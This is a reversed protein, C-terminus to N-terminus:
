NSWLEIQQSSTPRLFRRVSKAGKGSNCRKCATVLNSIETKGGEVVPIFHDIHLEESRGTKGCYVCRFNDRQLVDFRLSSGIHGSRRSYRKKTGIRRLVASCATSCCFRRDKQAANVKFETGCVCCSIIVPRHELRWDAYCRESCFKHEYPKAMFEKECQRCIKQVLDRYKYNRSM